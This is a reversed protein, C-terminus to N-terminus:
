GFMTLAPSATNMASTPALSGASAGLMGKGLASGLYSAGIAQMGGGLAMQGSNVKGASIIGPQAAQASGQANRGIIGLQSAYDANKYRENTLMDSAGRMKGMLQAMNISQEFQDAKAKADGTLFEQSMRGSPQATQPAGERSTTLQQVLSDGADARTEDFKALRKQAEYDGANELAKQEAKQSFQDQQELSENIKRQQRDAADNQADSQMKAGAVAIAAAALMPNCM